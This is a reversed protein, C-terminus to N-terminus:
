LANTSAVDADFVTDVLWIEGYKWHILCNKILFSAVILRVRNHM